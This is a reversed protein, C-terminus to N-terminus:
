TIKTSYSRTKTIKYLILLSDLFSLSEMDGFVTIHSEGRGVWRYTPTRHTSTLMPWTQFTRSIWSSPNPRRRLSLSHFFVLQATSPTPGGGRTATPSLCSVRSRTRSSWLRLSMNSGAATFRTAMLRFTCTSTSAHIVPFAKFGADISVTHLCWRSYHLSCSCSLCSSYM